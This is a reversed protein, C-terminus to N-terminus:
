YGHPRWVTELFGPMRIESFALILPLTPQAIWKIHFASREFHYATQLQNSPQKPSFQM